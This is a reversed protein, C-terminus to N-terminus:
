RKDAPPCTRRRDNQLTPNANNRHIFNKSLAIPISTKTEEDKTEIEVMIEEVQWGRVMRGLGLLMNAAAAATCVTMILDRSQKSDDSLDGRACVVSFLYCVIENKLLKLNSGGSCCRMLSTSADSLAGESPRM